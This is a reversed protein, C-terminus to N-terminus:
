AQYKDELAEHIEILEHHIKNLMWFQMAEPLSYGHSKFLPYVKETFEPLYQHFHREVDEDLEILEQRENDM